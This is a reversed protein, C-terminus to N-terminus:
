KKKLFKNVNIGIALRSYYLNNYPAFNMLGFYWYLRYTENKRVYHKGFGFRYNASVYFDGALYQRKVVGNEIAFTPNTYFTRAAGLDVQSIFFKNKKLARQWTRGVSLIVNHHHNRHYYYRAFVDWRRAKNIRVERGKKTKEKIYFKHPFSYNLEVGPHKFLGMIGIGIYKEHYLEDWDVLPKEEKKENKDQGFCVRCHVISLACVCIIFLVTRM